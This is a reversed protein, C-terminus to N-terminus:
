IYLLCVSLYVFTYGHIFLKVCVRARLCVCVTMSECVSMCAHMYVYMCMLCVNM